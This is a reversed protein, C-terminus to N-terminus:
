ASRGLLEMIESALRRREGAFPDRPRAEYQLTEEAFDRLLRMTQGIPRAEPEWIDLNVLDFFEGEALPELCGYCRRVLDVLKELFNREATIRGPGTAVRFARGVALTARLCDADEMMKGRYEWFLHDVLWGLHLARDERNV